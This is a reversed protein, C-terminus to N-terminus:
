GRKGEVWRKINEELVNLPVPGNVLVVDHFQRIDFKDGLEAKSRDRLEIIKNMGIKYANAQGVYVIYRDVEARITGEDLSSNNIMYQVAEERTWRKAHIGTDVVLRMARWIEMSLRGFDAYPDQYFGMDKALLESYLGWGETFATTALSYHSSISRNRRFKPISKSEMGIAIQMHHGPIGEHFILAEMRNKPLSPMMAPNFYVIGPRTGDESPGNYQAITAGSQVFKPFPKVVVGAKPLTGFFDPLRKNMEETMAEADAQYAAVGEPTDPYQFDKNDRMHDFFARLDGEYGVSQRITDMEAHIRAVEQLGLAHIEDPTMDTTTHFRLRAAYYKDGDPLKWAGDDVSAQGALMNVTARLEEIGPAFSGLLAEEAKAVLGSREEESIELKGVKKKFDALLTSDEGEEFPAGTLLADFSPPILELSFKPPMIGNKAQRLANESTNQFVTRMGHIRAIYANADDVNDIMHRNILTQALGKHPGRFHHIAYNHDDFKADALVQEARSEFIRYSVLSSVSLNETSFEARLRELNRELRRIAAERAFLTYETWKDNDIKQGLWARSSPSHALETEFVEEFFAALDEDQNQVEDAVPATEAVNQTKEEAKRDCAAQTLSLGLITALLVGLRKTM